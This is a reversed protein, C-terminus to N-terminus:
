SIDKYFQLTPKGKTHLEETTDSAPSYIEGISYVKGNRVIFRGQPGGLVSYCNPAYERLFLVMKTRKTFLPDDIIYSTKCSVKGGTQRILIEKADPDGKLVSDVTFHFDTFLISHHADRWKYPTSSSVTGVVVLDASDSLHDISYYKNVWSATCLSVQSQVLADAFFVASVMFIMMSLIVKKDRMKKV